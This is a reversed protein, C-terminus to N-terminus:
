WAFMVNKGTFPIVRKNLAKEIVSFSTEDFTGEIDLFTGVAIEKESDVNNTSDSLIEREIENDIEYDSYYDSM